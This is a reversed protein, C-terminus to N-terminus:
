KSIQLSIYPQYDGLCDKLMKELGKSTITGGSIADVGHELDGALKASGAGGKYVNIGIFKNSEDFLKKGKFPKQFWDTSIEAGLGPTEGKHDFVVGYLTNLDEEFSIFGWIPGWLGKGRVPIILHTGDEKKCLFAPLKRQKMKEAIEAQISKKETESAKQLEDNLKEIEGMLKVQPKLKVDFGKAGDIRQGQADLVFDDVIYKSFLEEANEVTSEIGVSSLIGQIKEIKVNREQIPQLTIATFSLIAAVVIVMVSAYIFTYINGQTNM